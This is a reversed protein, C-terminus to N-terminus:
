PRGEQSAAGTNRENSLHALDGFPIHPLFTPDLYRRDTAVGPISGGRFCTRGTVTTTAPAAAKNVTEHSTPSDMSAGPTYQVEAPSNDGHGGSAFITSQQTTKKQTPNVSSGESANVETKDGASDGLKKGLYAVAGGGHPQGRPM